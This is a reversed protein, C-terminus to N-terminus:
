ATAWKLADDAIPEPVEHGGVFQKFTVDYGRKQLAPVIVRSCEDIPLIQDQIGHSVFIRPKGTKARDVVFGPSFAIVRSFLDGNILALSLAYSAGDSFGAAIVRASDIAVSAFVRELARNVFPVDIAFTGRVGDWTQGRSDPALVAVGIADASNVIRRLVGRGSGGAGHFMVVLPLSREIKPPLHLIGDRSSELGLAEEGKAATTVGVKPRASLRGDNPGTQALLCGEGFASAAIWAASVAGFRRRTILM